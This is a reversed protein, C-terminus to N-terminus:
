EPISKQELGEQRRSSVLGFQSYVEVFLVRQFSKTLMEEWCQETM